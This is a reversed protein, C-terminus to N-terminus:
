RDSEEKWLNTVNSVVISLEKQGIDEYALFDDLVCPTVLYLNGEADEGVYGTCHPIRYLSSLSKLVYCNVKNKNIKILSAEEGVDMWAFYPSKSERFLGDAIKEVLISPISDDIALFVFDSAEEDVHIEYTEMADDPVGISNLAEDVLDFLNLEDVYGEFDDYGCSGREIAFLVGCIENNLSIKVYKM